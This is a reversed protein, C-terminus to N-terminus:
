DGELMRKLVAIQDPELRMFQVGMGKPTTTHHKVEALASFRGLRPHDVSVRTMTGLALQAGQIFLGGLSFNTCLGRVPGRAGEAFAPLECRLRAHVRTENPM